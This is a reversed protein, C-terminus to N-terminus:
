KGRLWMATGRPATTNLAGGDAWQTSISVAPLTAPVTYTM